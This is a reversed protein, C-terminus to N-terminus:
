SLPPKLDGGSQQLGGHCTYGNESSHCTYGNESSWTVCGGSTRVVDTNDFQVLEAVAKKYIAKSLM